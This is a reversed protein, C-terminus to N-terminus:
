NKTPDVVRGIYLICKTVEHYVVFIFPRNFTLRPPLPNMFLNGSAEALSGGSEDVDVAVKQEVESLKLGESSSIGTLNATNGFIEKVGLSPLSVSLSNSQKLSFRPLQIELKTKKLKAVWGRFVEGTMSEDVYTYDVDEDPLLVLMAIGNECPLKLIGVKFTPDYALYYKGSRLMMPVQVINYKNVYFRDEQTFTANFPQLWQGTFFAASILIAMSQPDVNEVVDRVKEGTRGRVYDNISGKAQQGNAYNVNQVDANYYQKVQNSFSDDAKVDQKIFLGTAPIQAADERLQQLINQIREQEGDKVMSDVGIGQLLESQTAGGAGAALTALALTAGLTSVAVNDDSSSAIKSYLRTAFDANKIALEEVDTTQGLVSVSLLSAEILLTFFGMKM